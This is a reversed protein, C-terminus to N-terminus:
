GKNKWKESKFRRGKRLRTTSQEKLLSNWALNEVESSLKLALKQSLFSFQEILRLFEGKMRFFNSYTQFRLRTLDFVFSNNVNLILSSYTRILGQFKPLATLTTKQCYM